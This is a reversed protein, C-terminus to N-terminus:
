FLTLGFVACGVVVGLYSIDLSIAVQFYLGLQSGILCALGSLSAGALQVFARGFIFVNNM